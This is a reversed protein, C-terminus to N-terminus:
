FKRGEKWAMYHGYSLGAAEAARVDREIQTMANKKPRKPQTTERIAREDDLVASICFRCMTNSGKTMFTEGCRKCVKREM